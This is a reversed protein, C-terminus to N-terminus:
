LGPLSVPFTFNIANQFDLTDFGLSTFDPPNGKAPLGICGEPGEFPNSTCDINASCPGDASCRTTVNDVNVKGHQLVLCSETALCVGNIGLHQFALDASARLIGVQHLNLKGGPSGGGIRPDQAQTATDPASLDYTLHQHVDETNQPTETTQQIAHGDIGAEPAGQTQTITGTGSAEALLHDQQNLAVDNRIISNQTLRACLNPETPSLTDSNCDTGPETDQRQTIGGSAHADAWRSQSVNATNTGGNIV